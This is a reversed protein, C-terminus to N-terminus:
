FSVYKMIYLCDIFYKIVIEDPDTTATLNFYENWRVLREAYTDFRDAGYQGLDVGIANAEKLLLEYNIM